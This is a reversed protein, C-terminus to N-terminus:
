IYLSKNKYYNIHVLIFLHIKYRIKILFKMHNLITTKVIIHHSIQKFLNIILFEIIWCDPSIIFLKKVRVKLLFLKRVEKMTMNNKIIPEM